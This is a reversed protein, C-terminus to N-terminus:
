GITQIGMLEGSGSGHPKFVLDHLGGCLDPEVLMMVGGSAGSCWIGEPCAPERTLLQMMILYTFAQRPTPLAMRRGILVDQRVGVSRGFSTMCRRTPEEHTKLERPLVASEVRQRSNPTLLDLMDYLPQGPDMYEHRGPTLTAGARVAELFSTTSHHRETCTALARLSRTATLLLRLPPQQNDVNLENLLAAITTTM